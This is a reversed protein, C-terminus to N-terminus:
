LLSWKPRFVARITSTASDKEFVGDGNAQSGRNSSSTNGQGSPILHTHPDIPGLAIGTHVSKKEKYFDFLLIDGLQVNRISVMQKKKRGWAEFAECNCFGKPTQQILSIAGADFFMKSVWMACWPAHNIGYWKGFPNDNNKGELFKSAISALVVEQLKLQLPHLPKPPTITPTM